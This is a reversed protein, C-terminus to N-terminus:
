EVNVANLRSSPQRQTKASAIECVDRAVDRSLQVFAM